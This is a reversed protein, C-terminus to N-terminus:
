IKVVRFLGTKGSFGPLPQLTVQVLYTGSTQPTLDFKEILPSAFNATRRTFIRKGNVDFVDIAVRGQQKTEIKVEFKGYTPNPLITIEDAGFFQLDQHKSIRESQIFGNTLVLRHTQPDMTNVLALEGVSWDLLLGSGAFNNGTANVVAPTISQAYGASSFLLLLSLVSLNLKM